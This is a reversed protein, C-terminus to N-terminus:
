IKISNIFYEKLFEKREDLFRIYEQEDDKLFMGKLVPKAAFPFILLSLLNVMLQRPDTKRIHGQEMEQRIQALIIEPEAGRSKINEVLREPNTNLEHLIFAPILPNDRLVNSYHDIFRIFKNELPLDSQLVRVIEPIFRMFADEFVLNFLKDKSRFYYNLLTRNIRAEDAIDQMSTGARGKKVFVKTAAKIIRAETESTLENKM